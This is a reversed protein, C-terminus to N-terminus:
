FVNIVEADSRAFAIFETPDAKVTVTRGGDHVTKDTTRVWKGKPLYVERETQAPYLLM